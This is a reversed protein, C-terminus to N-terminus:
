PAISFHFFWVYKKEVGIMVAPVYQPMQSVRGGDAGIQILKNLLFGNGEAIGIALRRDASWAAAGKHASPVGMHAAVAGHKM